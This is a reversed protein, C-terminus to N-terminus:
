PLTYGLLLRDLGYLWTHEFTTQRAFQRRFEADVGWRVQVARVWERCQQVQEEDLRFRTRIEPYDLLAFVSEAEFRGQPLALLQRTAAVLNRDGPYRQDAISFPLEPAGGGFVTEILPAYTEIEPSMVVIDAPTLSADAELVALLQDHLVEVERMPSHCAHIHLSSDAGGGGRREGPPLPAPVAPLLLSQREGALNLIDQQICHLVTDHGPDVFRESEQPYPEANRLNEIFDRGQRGWSALLPNGVTVYPQAEPAFRIRRKESEIDGWYEDSPNMIFFHVDRYQAVQNVLAIYAPSLAPVSFFCIREPLGDAHGEELARMFRQHLNVSHLLRQGGVVQQWLQAQWDTTVGEQEWRQIWDPRFFLYSDYVRALQQALQWANGEQGEGLYHGLSGRWREPHTLFAQLLRWRLLKPSCPDRRPVAEGLVARMLEWVIEAPFLFALNAAIGQQRALQLSLWRGMGANQVVVKEAAFPPLPDAQTLGAFLDSLHELRNSHHLHLM